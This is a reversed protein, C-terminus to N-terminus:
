IIENIISNCSENVNDNNKEIFIFDNCVVETLIRDEGEKDKWKNTRLSGELFLKSGKKLYQAAIEAKRNFIVIKHWQTKQVYSGSPKDKIKKSTALSFNVVATGSPTYRVQPDDGLNGLLTVKNISKSM